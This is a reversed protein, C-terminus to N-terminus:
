EQRGQTEPTLMEPILRCLCALSAQMIGPMPLPEGAPPNLVCLSLDYGPMRQRLKRYAKLCAAFAAENWEMSGKEGLSVIAAKEWIDLKMAHGAWAYGYDGLTFLAATVHSRPQPVPAPKSKM